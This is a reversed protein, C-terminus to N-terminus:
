RIKRVYAVSVNEIEAVARYNRGRHEVVRDQVVGDHAPAQELREAQAPRDASAVGRQAPGLVEAVELHDTSRRDVERDRRETPGLPRARRDVRGRSVRAVSRGGSADSSAYPR